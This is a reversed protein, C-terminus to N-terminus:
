SMKLFFTVDDATLPFDCVTAPLVRNRVCQNRALAPLPLVIKGIEHFAFAQQASSARPAKPPVVESCHQPEKRSWSKHHEQTSNTM